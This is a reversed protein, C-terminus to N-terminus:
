STVRPLSGSSRRGPPRAAERIEADRSQRATELLSVVRPHSQWHAALGRLAALMMPTKPALRGLSAIGRAVVLRRLMRLVVPDHVSAVATVALARLEPDIGPDAARAIIRPVFEPPCRDALTVLALRLTPEHRSDLAEALGRERLEPDTLALAIAEHRVRPDRHALLAHPELNAPREPIRGLLALLNRQVYWPMGDLREAALPAITAGYRPLLDLLRLRVQRERSKALCDLLAPIAEVGAAPILRDLTELDVPDGELISRVTDPHFVRQHIARAIPTEEPVTQLLALLPAVQRRAIMRDAAALTGPELIGSELALKLIREPEPALRQGPSEAAPGVPALRTLEEALARRATGEDPGGARRALRALVHLAAPTLQSERGHAAAELLRLLLPPSLQGAVARLFAGQALSSAGPALLRRLIGIPLARLLHSLVERDDVDSSTADAIHALQELLLGDRAPDPALMELAFALEDPEAAAAERATDQLVTREFPLWPDGEAHPTASLTELGVHPSVPWSGRGNGNGAVASFVALLEAQTAGPRFELTKVGAERLQGALDRLPEFDPNTEMGEVVLQVTGVEIALSERYRMVHELERELAAVGAAVIPHSEPLTRLRQLIGALGLLLDALQRNSTARPASSRPAPMM